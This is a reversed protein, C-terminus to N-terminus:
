YYLIFETLFFKFCKICINLIIYVSFTLIFERRISCVFKIIIFTVLILFVLYLLRLTSEEALEKNVIRKMSEPRVNGSM